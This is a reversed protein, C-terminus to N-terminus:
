RWRRIRLHSDLGWLFLFGALGYGVNRFSDAPEPEWPSFGAVVLLVVALLWTARRTRVFYARKKAHDTVHGHQRSAADM